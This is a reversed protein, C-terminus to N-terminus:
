NRAPRRHHGDTLLELAELSRALLGPLPGTFVLATVDDDVGDVPRPDDIGGYRRVLSATPSSGVNGAEVEDVDQRGIGGAAGCQCREAPWVRAAIHRVVLKALSGDGATESAITSGVRSKDLRDDLSTSLLCGNQDAQMPVRDQRKASCKQNPIAQSAGIKLRRDIGGKSERRRLTGSVTGPIGLESRGQREEIALVQATIQLLANEPHCWNV